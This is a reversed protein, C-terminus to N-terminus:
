SHLQLVFVSLRVRFDWALICCLFQFSQRTVSSRLRLFVSVSGSSSWKCKASSECEFEDNPENDNVNVNDNENDNVIKVNENM